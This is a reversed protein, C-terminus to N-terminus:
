GYTCARHLITNMGSGDVFYPEDLQIFCDTQSIDRYQSVHYSRGHPEEVQNNRCEHM